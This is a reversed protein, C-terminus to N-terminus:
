MGPLMIKFTQKHNEESLVLLYVGPAFSSVDFCILTADISRVVMLSGSCDYIAAERSLYDETLNVRLENRYISVKAEETIVPDDALTANVIWGKSKLSAAHATGGASPAHNGSLDLKGNIRGANDLTELVNDVQTESLSCDALEVVTLAPTNGIDLNSLKSGSLSLEKLAVCGNVDASSYNNDYSDIREIVLSHCEFTGDQGSNWNLLETLVPFQTLSPLKQNMQPNDRICIHWLSQGASGWEIFQYNNLAGRLDELGTCGSLDLSDLDCDEVCLRELLPHSGMRIKELSQCKYLEVFKLATLGRLDLETLLNFSACLYQLSGAALALNDFALVNQAQVLDFDGYGGDAADYGTNIGVLSSWPTVKLYNRRSGTTGYEKLPTASSSTTSDNFFWEIVPNGAVEIVPAFVAGYSQFNIVDSPIPIVSVPSSIEGEITIKGWRTSGGYGGLAIKKNFDPNCLTNCTYVVNNASSKITMRDPSVTFEYDQTEGVVIFPAGIEGLNIGDQCWFNKYTALVAGLGPKPLWASGSFSILNAYINIHGATTLAAADEAMIRSCKSGQKWVMARVNTSGDTITVYGNERTLRAGSTIDWDLLQNDNSWDYVVRFHTEDIWTVDGNLGLDSNGADTQCFLLSAIFWHICIILLRKMVISIKTSRLCMGSLWGPEFHEARSLFSMM